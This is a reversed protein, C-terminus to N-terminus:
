AGTFSMTISGDLIYDTTKPIYPVTYDATIVAGAAPPTLFEVNWLPTNSYPSTYASSGNSWVFYKGSPSFKSAYNSAYTGALIANSVAITRINKVIKNIKDLEGIKYSNATNNFCIVHKSDKSIFLPQAMDYTLAGFGSIDIKAGFLGNVADWEYLALGGTIAMITVYANDDSWRTYYPKKYIAMEANKVVPLGLAATTPDVPYIAYDGSIYAALAVWKSDPSVNPAGFVQFGPNTTSVLTLTPNTDENDIRYVYFISSSGVRPTVVVFKGNPAVQIMSLNNAIVSVPNLRGTIPLGLSNIGRFYFTHIGDTDSYVFAFKKSPLVVYANGNYDTTTGVGTMGAYVGDDTFYSTTIRKYSSSSTNNGFISSEKDPWPFEITGTCGDAGIMEKIGGRVPTIVVQAPDIAVGDVKITATGPIIGDWKFDFLKKVGDGTGLPDAVVNFGEWVGPIPFIFQVMTLPDGGSMIISRIPGNASGVPVRTLVQTFSYNAPNTTVSAGSVSFIQGNYVTSPVSPIDGSHYRIYFSSIGATSGDYLWDYFVGLGSAVVSGPRGGTGIQSLRAGTDIYLTAYITIIDTSTKTISITNGEADKLLAHTCLNAATGSSAIGVETITSGVFEEPALVIKKTVSGIPIARDVSHIASVKTGLFTFLGTRTPDTVGTGTGFHINTSFTSRNMLLTLMRNLVINYAVAEQKLEGTIADRVEIHFKNHFGINQKLHM